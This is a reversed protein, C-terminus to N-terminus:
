AFRRLKERLSVIVQAIFRARASVFSTKNINDPSCYFHQHIDSPGTGIIAPAQRGSLCVHTLSPTVTKNGAPIHV